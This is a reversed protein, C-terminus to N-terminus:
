RELKTKRTTSATQAAFWNEATWLNVAGHGCVVVLRAAKDEEADVVVGCGDLDALAEGYGSFAKGVGSAGEEVLRADAFSEDEGGAVADFEERELVFGGLGVGGPDLCVARRVEKAEEVFVESDLGAVDLRVEVFKALALGDAM